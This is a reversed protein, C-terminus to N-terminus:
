ARKRPRHHAAPRKDPVASKEPVGASADRPKLKSFIRDHLWHPDWWEKPDVQVGDVQMSFHLHDGGAMGTEGSLGLKQAKKVAEGPKVDIRSLHGYISQLGLGHDVVVCNGYIGLREAYIVTGDNSSHIPTHKSSALDYGLHVQEDVKKGNYIYSRVDAFLSEPKAPQHMFPETWLFHDATKLRLNYLTEGNSKRLERNMKLFRELPDGSGGPEIDNVVHRLFADTIEIDRKRFKKPKVHQDFDATVQGAPNAAYVVATTDPSLDWPFAFLAVRQKSNGPLAFSRFTYNGVKVGSEPAFGDVTLLVLEAGGQNIYHQEGDAGVAPPKTVVEVDRRVVTSAGRFDNSVAEIALVGKGDKMQSAHKSDPTFSVDAPKEHAFFFVRHAPQKVEFLPIRQGNEELFATLERIGHADSAHVKVPTAPGLAKLAPDLDLAPKSSLILLLLIPLVIVAAVVILIINRM